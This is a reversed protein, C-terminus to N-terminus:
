DKLANKVAYVFEEMKKHDKVGPSAEVGSSVDVAYPKVYEVAQKVNQPTLGGALFVRFGGEVARKATNWDTLKGTGGYSQGSYADFFCRM